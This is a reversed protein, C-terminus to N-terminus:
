GTLELANGMRSERFLVRLRHRQIGTLYEESPTEKKAKELASYLLM